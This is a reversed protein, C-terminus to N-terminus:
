GEIEKPSVTAVESGGHENANHNAVLYSAISEDPDTGHYGCAECDMVYVTLTPKEGAARNAVHERDAGGDNM